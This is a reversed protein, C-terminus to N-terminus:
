DARPDAGRIGTMHREYHAPEAGIEADAMALHPGADLHGLLRRLRIGPRDAAHRAVLGIDHRLDVATM